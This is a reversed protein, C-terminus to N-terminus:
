AEDVYLLIGVSFINKDHSIDIHGNYKEVSKRINELGYGHSNGGKRTVIRKKDESTEKAYEVVGDFTNESTIFINGKDSEIILKIRKPETKAVADLANDLLNGLITVVDAVEINLAPPISVNIDLDINENVADKLKFNIIYCVDKLVTFLITLYLFPM